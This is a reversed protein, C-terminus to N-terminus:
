QEEELEFTVPGDPELVADRLAEEVAEVMDKAEPDEATDMSYQITIRLNYSTMGNM